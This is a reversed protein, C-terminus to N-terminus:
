PGSSSWMSSSWRGSTSAIAITSFPSIASAFVTTASNSVSRRRATAPQAVTHRRARRVDLERERDLLEQRPQDGLFAAGLVGQARVPTVEGRVEDPQGRVPVGDLVNGGSGEHREDTFTAGAAGGGGRDGALECCHAHQVAVQGQFADSGVIRGGLQLPHPHGRADRLREAFGLHRTQEVGHDDGFGDM